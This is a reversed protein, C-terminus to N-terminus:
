SKAEGNFYIMGEVWGETESWVNVWAHYQKGTYGVVLKIPM